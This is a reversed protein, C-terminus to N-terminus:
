KPYIYIFLHTSSEYLAMKNQTHEKKEKEKKEVNANTM